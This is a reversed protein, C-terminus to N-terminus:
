IEKLSSANDVINLLQPIFVLPMDDEILIIKKFGYIDACIKKAFNITELTCVFIVM